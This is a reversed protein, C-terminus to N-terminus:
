SIGLDWMGAPNPHDQWREVIKSAEESTANSFYYLADQYDRRGRPATPRAKQAYAYIERFGAEDFRSAICAAALARGSPDFLIRKVFSDDLRTMRAFLAIFLAVDGNRLIRLITDQDLLGEEDLMQALQRAKGQRAAGSNENAKSLEDAADILREVTADDLKWDNVIVQRLSQSVWLFMREALDEGLDKRRVLPERFIDERESQDVLYEM